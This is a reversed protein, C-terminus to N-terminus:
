HKSLVDSHVSAHQETGSPPTVMQRIAIATAGGLFLSLYFALVCRAWRRHTIEDERSSGSPEDSIHSAIHASDQSFVDLVDM